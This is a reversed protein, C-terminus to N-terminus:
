AKPPIKRGKTPASDPKAKRLTVGPQDGNTFEAGELELAKIIAALTSARLGWISPATPSIGALKSGSKLYGSCGM